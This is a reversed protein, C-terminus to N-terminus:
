IGQKNDAGFDAFNHLISGVRNAIGLSFEESNFNIGCRTIGSVTAGSAFQKLLLM